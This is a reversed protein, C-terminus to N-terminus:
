NFSQQRRIKERAQSYKDWYIICASICYLHCRELNKHNKMLKWLAAFFIKLKGGIFFTFDKIKNRVLIFKNM